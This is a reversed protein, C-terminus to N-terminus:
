NIHLVTAVESYNKFNINPHAIQLTTVSGGPIVVIKFDLGTQSFNAKINVYGVGFDSLTITRGAESYPLAYYAGTSGTTRFYALVVGSDVIDQTIAPINFNTFGTLTVSRNILLYSKVSMTGDAGNAGDTGNSGAPGQPGTAGTNGTAGQPGGPGPSGTDGKPGQAGNTGNTGAPGPDGKKCANISFLCILLVPFILRLKRM